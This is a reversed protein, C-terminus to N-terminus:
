RNRVTFTFKQDYYSRNVNAAWLSPRTVVEPEALTEVGTRQELAHLRARFNPDALIGVVTARNPPDLLSRQVIIRGGIAHSRAQRLSYVSAWCCLTAILLIAILIVRSPKM